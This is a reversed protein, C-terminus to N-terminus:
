TWDDRHSTFFNQTLDELNLTQVERGTDTWYGTSLIKLSGRSGSDQVERGTMGTLLSSIKLSGRSGSDQVERGTM